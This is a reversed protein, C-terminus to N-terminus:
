SQYHITMVGSGAQGGGIVVVCLKLGEKNRLNKVIQSEIRQDEAPQNKMRQAPRIRAPNPKGLVPKLRPSAKETTQRM